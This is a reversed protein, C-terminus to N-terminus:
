TRTSRNKIYLGVQCDMFDPHRQQMVVELPRMCEGQFKLESMSDNRLVRSLLQRLSDLAFLAVNPNRARMVECFHTSVVGWLRGWVTLVRSQNMNADAVEVLKQLSFIRPELGKVDSAHDSASGGHGGHDM